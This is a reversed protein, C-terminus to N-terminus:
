GTKLIKEGEQLKWARKGMSRGKRTVKEAGHELAGCHTESSLRPRPLTSFGTLNEGCLVGGPLAAAPWFARGWPTKMVKPPGCAGPPPSLTQAM